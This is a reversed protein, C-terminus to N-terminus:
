SRLGRRSFCKHRKQCLIWSKNVEVGYVNWNREKAKGLFRGTSCGIDLIDSPKKYNLIDDLVYNYVHDDRDSITHFANESERNELNNRKIAWKQRPNVYVLQCQKCQIIDFLEDSYLSKVKCLKSSDDHGCIACDVTEREIM